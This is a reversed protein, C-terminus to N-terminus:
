CSHSPCPFGVMEVTMEDTQAMQALSTTQMTQLRGCVLTTTLKKRITQTLLHWARPADGGPRLRLEEADPLSPGAGADGVDRMKPDAVRAATTCAFRTDRLEPRIPSPLTRWSHRFSLLLLLLRTQRTRHHPGEWFLPRPATCWPPHPFDPLPIRTRGPCIARYAPRVESDRPHPRAPPWAHVFLLSRILSCTFKFNIFGKRPDITNSEHHNACCEHTDIM